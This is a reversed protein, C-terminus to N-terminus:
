CSGDVKITLFRDIILAQLAHEDSWTFRGDFEVFAPKGRGVVSRYQHRFRAFDGQQSVPVVYGTLCESFSPGSAPMQMVGAMRITETFDTTEPQRGLRHELPSATRMLLTETDVSDFIRRPGEGNLEIASEGARAIWRGFSYVSKAENNGDALYRQRLFFRHDARLWLSADIGACVDCPFVGAYIGPLVAENLTTTAPAEVDDSCAGILLLGLSICLRNL